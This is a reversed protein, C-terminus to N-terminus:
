CALTYGAHQNKLAVIESQRGSSSSVSKRVQRMWVRVFTEPITPGSIAPTRHSILIKPLWFVMTMLSRRVMTSKEPYM